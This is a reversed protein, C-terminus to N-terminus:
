LFYRSHSALSSATSRGRLYRRFSRDFHVQNRRRMNETKSVKNVSKSQYSRGAPKGWPDPTRATTSKGPPFSLRTSRPLCAVPFAMTDRIIPTCWSGACGERWHGTRQASSTADNYTVGVQFIIASIGSDDYLSRLGANKAAARFSARPLAACPFVMMFWYLLSRLTTSNSTPCQTCNSAVSFSLLSSSVQSSYKILLVGICRYQHVGSISVSNIICIPLM